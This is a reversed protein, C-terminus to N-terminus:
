TGRRTVRPPHPTCPCAEVCDNTAATGSTHGLHGQRLVRSPVHMACYSPQNVKGRCWRCTMETAADSSWSRRQPWDLQHPGARIGNSSSRQTVAVLTGCSSSHCLVEM